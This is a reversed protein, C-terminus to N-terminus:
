HHRVATDDFEFPQRPSPIGSTTGLALVGVLDGSMSLAARIADEAILVDGMFSGDLGAANAALWMNQIAAGLGLMEFGYGILANERVDAEARCVTRRGDSFRGRNEVFFAVSVQRLVDSSECVTSSWEERANGTAPDIPVSSWRRASVGASTQSADMAAVHHTEQRAEEMADALRGILARDTVVHIRWPRANKSSPAALGCRVIEDLVTPSVPTGDFGERISRRELITRIVAQTHEGTM